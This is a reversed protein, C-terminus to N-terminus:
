QEPVMVTYTQTCPVQDYETRYVTCQGERQEQRYTTRCVQYPVKEEVTRYTTCVQQRQEQRYRTQCVTHYATEWKPVYVTCTQPACCEEAISATEAGLVAPATKPPATTGFGLATISGGMVAFMLFLHVRKM